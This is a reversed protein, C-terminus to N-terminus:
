CRDAEWVKRWRGAGDQSIAEYWSQNEGFVQLLVEEGARGDWNLHDVLRPAAKGAERYARTESYFPTYGRRTEFEALYFVSYGQPDAPGVGLSDGVLYTAAMEVHGGPLVELAQLDRQAGAWSRPRPLGHQLILREALLSAYTRINRDVQPATYEGRVEPALGRRFALFHPADAAAAVTTVNGVATPVGCVTTPGEGQLVFTGVAAGRRFVQFQSGPPIVTERFRQVYAEPSVEAPRRLTRLSDGVVEAVPILRDAGAGRVLHFLVTGTPMGLETLRRTDTELAEEGRAPPPPVIRVESGGWQINDCGALAALILVATLRGARSSPM